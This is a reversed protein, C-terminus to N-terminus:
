VYPYSQAHVGVGVYVVMCMFHMYGLGQLSLYICVLHGIEQDTHLWAKVMIETFEWSM